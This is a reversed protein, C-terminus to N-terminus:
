KKYIGVEIALQEWKAYTKKFYETYEAPTSCFTLTGKSEMQAKM